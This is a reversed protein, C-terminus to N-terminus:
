VVALVVYMLYMKGVGYDGYFFVLNFFLSFVLVMMCVVVVVVENVLGVCFIDFIFCM